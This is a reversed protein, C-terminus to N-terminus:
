FPVRGQDDDWQSPTQSGEPYLGALEDDSLSGSEQRDHRVEAAKHEAAGKTEMWRLLADAKKYTPKARDSPTNNAERVFWILWGHRRGGISGQALHSWPQGKFKGFPIESMIDFPPAGAPLGTDPDEEPDRTSSAAPQSQPKTPPAVAPKPQPRPTAPAPAPAAGEGSTPRGTGGPLAWGPLQAEWNRPPYGNELDVWFQPLWYLYRGIGFKVAVRKMSDSAAGKSPEIDTEDAADEHDVRLIQFPSENREDQDIVQITLSCIWGKSSERVHRYDESWYPPGVVEDLREMIARNTVYPLMMGKTKGKNTAGLRWELEDARFPRSLLAFAESALRRQM